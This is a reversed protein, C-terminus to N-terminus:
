SENNEVSPIRRKENLKGIDTETIFEILFKDHIFWCFKDLCTKLFKLILNNSNRMKKKNFSELYQVLWFSWYEVHIIKIIKKHFRILAFIELASMVRSNKKQFYLELEYIAYLYNSHSNIKKAWLNVLHISIESFLKHVFGIHTISFQKFLIKIFILEFTWDFKLKQSTM